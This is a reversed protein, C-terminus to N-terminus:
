SKAGASHHCDWCDPNVATYAHCADCFEERNAHCTLCNEEFGIHAGGASLDLTKGERVSVTRWEDLIQMHRERMEAASFLCEEGAAASIVVEPAATVSNGVNLWFPATFLALFFILGIMIEKEKM